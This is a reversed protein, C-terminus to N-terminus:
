AKLLELLQPLLPFNMLAIAMFITISFFSSNYCFKCNCRTVAVTLHQSKAVLRILNLAMRSQVHYLCLSLSGSALSAVQLSLFYFQTPGLCTAKGFVPQFGHREEFVQALLQKDRRGVNVPLVTLPFGYRFVYLASFFSTISSSCSRLVPQSPSRSRPAAIVVQSDGYRM